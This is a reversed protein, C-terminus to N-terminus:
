EGRDASRVMSIFEAIKEPCKVGPELEVGGSVDVAWPRVRKVASRVNMPTLCGALVLPVHSAIAGARQAGILLDWDFRKGTGGRAEPSYADLLIACVGATSYNRMAELFTRDRVRLAKTVRLGALRGVFDPSEDGHLQVESLGVENVVRYITAAQSNAFVGVSSVYPPLASVIERARAVTVRRSSEAFVLGVADAGARSAAVGDEPRTIGCIKIRTM